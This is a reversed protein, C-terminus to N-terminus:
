LNGAAMEGLMPTGLLEDANQEYGPRQERDAATERAGIVLKQEKAQKEADGFAANKGGCQNQEGVPERTGLASAGVRHPEEAKGGRDNERRRKRSPHEIVPAPSHHKNGFASQRKNQSAM